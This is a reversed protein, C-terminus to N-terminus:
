RRGIYLSKNAPPRATTLVGSAGDHLAKAAEESQILAGEGRIVEVHLRAKFTPTNIM